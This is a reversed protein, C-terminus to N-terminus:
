YHTAWTAADRDDPSDTFSKEGQWLLPHNPPLRETYQARDKIHDLHKQDTQAKSAEQEAKAADSATADSAAAHGTATVWEKMQKHAEELEADTLTHPEEFGADTLTHPEEFGADTIPGGTHAQQAPMRVM